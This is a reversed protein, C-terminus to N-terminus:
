ELKLSDTTLSLSDIREGEIEVEVEEQQIPTVVEEAVVERPEIGVIMSSYKDRSLVALVMVALAAVMVLFGIIRKIM